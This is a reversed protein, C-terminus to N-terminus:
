PSYDPRLTDAMHRLIRPLDVDKRENGDRDFVDVAGNAYVHMAFLLGGGRNPDPEPIM